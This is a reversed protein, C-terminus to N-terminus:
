PRTTRRLVDIARRMGNLFGPVVSRPFRPWTLIIATLLYLVLLIGLGPAQQFAVWLFIGYAPAQFLMGPAALIGIKWFVLGWFALYLGGAWWAVFGAAMLYVLLGISVFMDVELDHDGIWTHYQRRSRRAISGDLMDGLWDVFMIWVVLPFAAAGCTIGLWVLLLGLISRSFTILDAVQKAVLMFGGHKFDGVEVKASFSGSNL